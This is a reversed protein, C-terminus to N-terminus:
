QMGKFIGNPIVARVSKFIAVTLRLAGSAFLLAFEKRSRVLLLFM